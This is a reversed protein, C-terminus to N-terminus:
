SEPEVTRWIDIVKRLHSTGIDGARWDDIADRLGDADIGGSEGVYRRLGEGVGIVSPGIQLWLTERSNPGAMGLSGEIQYRGGDPPVLLEYSIEVTTDAEIESADETGYFVTLADPGAVTEWGTEASLSDLEVGEVTPSFREELAIFDVTTEPEFTIRVTTREGPELIPQDIERDVPTDTESM